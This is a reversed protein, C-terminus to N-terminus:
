MMFLKIQATDYCNCIARFNTNAEHDTTRLYYFFTVPRQEHVVESLAGFSTTLLHNHFSHCSFTFFKISKSIGNWSQSCYWAPRVLCRPLGCTACTQRIIWCISSNTHYSSWTQWMSVQCYIEPSLKKRFFNLWNPRFYSSIFLIIALNLIVITCIVSINWHAFHRLSFYM